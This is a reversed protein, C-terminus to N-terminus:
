LFVGQRGHMATHAVVGAFGAAVAALEVARHADMGHFAEEAIAGDLLPQFTSHSAGALPLRTSIM